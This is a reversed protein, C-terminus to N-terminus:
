YTIALWTPQVGSGRAFRVDVFSPATSGGIQQGGQSWSALHRVAVDGEQEPYGDGRGHDHPTGSRARRDAAEEGERQPREADQDREVPQVQHGDDCDGGREPDPVGPEPLLRNSPGRDRSERQQEPEHLRGLLAAVVDPREDPDDPQGREDLEVDAQGGERKRDLQDQDREGHGERDHRHDRLEPGVCLDHLSPGIGNETNDPEGDEDPGRRIEDGRPIVEVLSLERQGEAERDPQRQGGQWEDEDEAEVRGVLAM